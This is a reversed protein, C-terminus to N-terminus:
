KAGQTVATTTLVSELLKVPSQNKYASYILLLGLGGLIWMILANSKM